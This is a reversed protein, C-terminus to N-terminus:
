SSERPAATCSPSSARRSVPTQKGTSHMRPPPTPDQLPHPSAISEKAFAVPHVQPRSADSPSPASGHRYSTTRPTSSGRHFRPPPYLIPCTATKEKWWTAPAFIHHFRDPFDAAIGPRSFVKKPWRSKRNPPPTQNSCLPDPFAM